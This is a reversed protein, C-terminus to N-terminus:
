TTGLLRWTMAMGRARLARGMLSACGICFGVGLAATYGFLGPWTLPPHGILIGAVLAAPLGIALLPPLLASQVYQMTSVGVAACGYKMTVLGRCITASVALAVCGGLLGFHPMLLLAGLVGGAAEVLSMYALPKHRASGLLVGETIQQSMPLLEGLALVALPLAASAQRSGVWLTIVTRGLLILLAVFFLSLALSFKTGDVFLQRQREINQRAHLMASVPAFVGTAASM